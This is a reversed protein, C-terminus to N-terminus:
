RLTVVPVTALARGGGSQTVSVAFTGGEARVILTGQLDNSDAKPFLADITQVIAANAGLQIQARGGEIEAGRADQLVLTLTLPTATASIAVQTNVGTARSRQAPAIFGNVLDSAAASLTGATPSSLHVGGGAVGEKTAVRVTGPRLAGGANATFVASGLPAIDWAVSAAAGQGNVAVLRSQGGQDFFLLTGRARSVPSPNVLTIASRYDGGVPFTPFFLPGSTARPSIPIVPFATIAGSKADRQLGIGALPGGEQARDIGGEITMTGEFDDGAWAFLASVFVVRHGNAPIDIEVAGQNPTSVEQGNTRHLTLKVNSRVTSAFIAVGTDVGDAKGQRVPVMFSDLLSAESARLPGLDPLATQVFGGISRDTLVLASGRASQAPGSADFALRGLPPVTFSYTSQAVGGGVRQTLPAGDHNFFVVRGTSPTNSPNVLIFSAPASETSGITTFLHAHQVHEIGTLRYTGGTAPDVVSDGPERALFGNLVLTDQGSGGDVWETEGPGVDGARIVILDNESDARVLDVGGGAILVDDGPGGNLVDAGDGGLLTDHEDGGDLTDPGGSGVMTDNGIEGILVDSGSGGDLADNGAGGLLIDDGEGGSLRDNGADGGLADRGDGGELLDDGPGGSLRDDGDRGLVRDAGEGGSQTDNGDGGVLADDGAGGTLVDDGDGGDIDDNGPGGDLSDEDDGGDMFDNDDGGFVNDRGAGGDLVDHGPGGVLSDEGAGGDLTDRGPGGRLVDHGEYGFLWDDGESGDIVDDAKTGEIVRERERPAIIRGGRGGQTTAPSQNSQQRAQVTATGGFSAGLDMSLGALLCFGLVVGLATLWRWTDM